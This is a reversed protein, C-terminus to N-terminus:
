SSAHAHGIALLDGNQNRCEVERRADPGSQSITIHITDGAYLPRVFAIELEGGEVWGTGAQELMLSSIYACYHLAQAVTGELGAAKAVEPDTHHSGRPAASRVEARGRGSGAFATMDDQTITRSLTAEPM